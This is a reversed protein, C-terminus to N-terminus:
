PLLLKVGSTLIKGFIFKGKVVQSAIYGVGCVGAGAVCGFFGIVFVKDIGKVPTAMLTPASNLANGGGRINM